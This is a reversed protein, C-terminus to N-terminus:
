GGSVPPILAAEDGPCFDEGAALYECNKALRVSGRLSALSPFDALLREWFVTECIGEGECALTAEACGAAQRASAFFLVRLEGVRKDEL